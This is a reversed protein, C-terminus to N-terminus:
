LNEGLQHRCQRDVAAHREHQDLMQIGVVVTQQHFQQSLVGRRDSQMVMM